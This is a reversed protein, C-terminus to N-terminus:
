IVPMATMISSVVNRNTEVRGTPCHVPSQIRGPCVQVDLSRTIAEFERAMAAKDRALTYTASPPWNPETSACTAAADVAADASPSTRCAGPPFIANLRKLLRDGPVPAASPLSTETTTSTRTDSPALMWWTAAVVVVVLAAVAVAIAVIPASPRRRPSAVVLSADISDSWSEAAPPSVDSPTDISEHRPASVVEHPRLSAVEPSSSVEGQAMMEETVVPIPDTPPNEDVFRRSPVGAANPASPEPTTM